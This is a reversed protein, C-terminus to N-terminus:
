RHLYTDGRQRSVHMGTVHEHEVYSVGPLGDGSYTTTGYLWM